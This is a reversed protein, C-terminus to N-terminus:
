ELTGAVVQERDHVRSRCMEPKRSSTRALPVTLALHKLPLEFRLSPGLSDDLGALQAVVLDGVVALRHASQYRKVVALTFHGSPQRVRGGPWLGALPHCRM